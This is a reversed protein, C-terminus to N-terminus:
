SISSSEARKTMILKKNSVYPKVFLGFKIRKLHLNFRFCEGAFHTMRAFSIWQISIRSFNEFNFTIYHKLVVRSSYLTTVAHFTNTNPTIRTRIKRMRVSYSSIRLIEGYETRIRSFVSWFLKSYPCKKRLTYLRILYKIVHCFIVRVTSLDSKTLSMKLLFIFWWTKSKSIGLARLKNKRIKKRIKKERKVFKLGTIRIFITRIFFQVTYIQM